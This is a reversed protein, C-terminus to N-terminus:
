RINKVKSKGNREGKNAEIQRVGQKRTCPKFRRKVSAEPFRAHNRPGERCGVQKRGEERGFSFCWELSDILQNIVAVVFKMERESRNPDILVRNM